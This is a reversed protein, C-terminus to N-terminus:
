ADRLMRDLGDYARALLRRVAEAAEKQGVLPGCFVKPHADAKLDFHLLTRDDVPELTWSARGRYQGSRLQFSVSEHHATEVIEFSVTVRGATVEVKSAIRSDTLQIVGFSLHSPWWRAYSELDLLAAFLRRPPFDFERSAHATYTSPAHVPM